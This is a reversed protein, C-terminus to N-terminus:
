TWAAALELSDVHELRLGWGAGCPLLRGRAVVQHGLHLDAQGPSLPLATACGGFWARMDVSLTASLWVSWASGAQAGAVDGSSRVPGGPLTMRGEHPQWAGAAQWGTPGTEASSVGAQLQVPWHRQFGGPLLLVAGPVLGSSAIREAPLTQLCLRAPWLPWQVPLHQPAARGPKLAPWPLSLHGGALPSTAEFPLTLGSSPATRGSGSRGVGPLAPEPCPLDTGLWHEVAALAPLAAGLAGAQGVGQGPAACPLELWALGSALPLDFGQTPTM